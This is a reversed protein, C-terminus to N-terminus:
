TFTRLVSFRTSLSNIFHTFEFPFVAVKDDFTAVDWMQWRFLLSAKRINRSEDFLVAQYTAFQRHFANNHLFVPRLVFDDELHNFRPHSAASFEVRVRGVM